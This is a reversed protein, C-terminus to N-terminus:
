CYEGYECGVNEAHIRDILEGNLDFLQVADEGWAGAKVM